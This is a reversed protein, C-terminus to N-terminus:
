SMGDWREAEEEEFAIRRARELAALPDSAPKAAEAALRSAAYAHPM